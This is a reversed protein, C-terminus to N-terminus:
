VISMRLIVALLRGFTPQAMVSWPWAAPAAAVANGFAAIAPPLPAATEQRFTVTRNTVSRRVTVARSFTDKWTSCPPNRLRSPGDPHPFDVRRRTTASRIEGEPPAADTKPM